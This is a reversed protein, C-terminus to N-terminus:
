HDLVVNLQRVIPWGQSKLTRSAWAPCIVLLSVMPLKKLRKMDLSVCNRTEGENLVLIPNKM